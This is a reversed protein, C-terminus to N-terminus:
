AGGRAKALLKEIREIHGDPVVNFMERYVDIVIELEHYLQPSTVILNINAMTEDHKRFVGDCFDVPDITCISISEDREPSICNEDKDYFWPGKSFKAESM